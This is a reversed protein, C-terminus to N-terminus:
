LLGSCVRGFWTHADAKHRAKYTLKHVYTDAAIKLPEQVSKDLQSALYFVDTNNVPVDLFIQRLSPSHWYLGMIFIDILLYDIQKSCESWYKEYIKMLAYFLPNRQYGGIFFGSWIWNDNDRRATSQHRTYIPTVCIEDPFDKTVYLTADLWIGGYNYLLAFRVYDSLATITMNGEDLRTQLSAPLQIYNKLNSQNILVVKRGSSHRKVSQICAKILQPTEDTIGQWWMIWIPGNNLVTHSSRGLTSFDINYQRIMKLSYEDYLKDSIIRYYTMGRSPKVKAMVGQIALSLGYKPLIAQFDYAVKRVKRKVDSVTLM